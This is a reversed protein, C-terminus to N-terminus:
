SASWKLPPALRHLLTLEKRSPASPLETHWGLSPSAKMRKSCQNRIERSQLSGHFLARLFWHIKDGQSFNLILGKLTEKETKRKCFARWLPNKLRHQRKQLAEGNSTTTSAIRCSTPAPHM